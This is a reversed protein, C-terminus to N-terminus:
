HLHASFWDATLADLEAVAAAARTPRGTVVARRWGFYLRIVRAALRTQERRRALQMSTAQLERADFVLRDLRWTARAEYTTGYGVDPDLHEWRTNRGGRLAVLPVLGALRARRRFGASPDHDLGAARYAAALVAGIPPESGPAAVEDGDLAHVHTGIPDIPAIAEDRPRIEDDVECRPSARASTALTALLVGAILLARRLRAPSTVALDTCM